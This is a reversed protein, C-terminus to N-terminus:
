TDRGCNFFYIYIYVCVCQSHSGWVEPHCPEPIEGSFSTATSSTAALVWLFLLGAIPHKPFQCYVPFAELRRKVTYGIGHFGDMLSKKDSCINKLELMIITKHGLEKTYNRM